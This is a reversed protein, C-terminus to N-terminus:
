LWFNAYVIHRLIFYLVVCIPGIFALNTLNKKKYRILIAGCIWMIGLDIFSNTFFDWHSFLTNLFQLIVLWLMTMMVFLVLINYFGDLIVVINNFKNQFDKWLFKQYLWATGFFTYYSDSSTKAAHAKLIKQSKKYKEREVVIDLYTVMSWETINIEHEKQEDLYALEASEMLMYLAGIYERITSQNTGLRAKKLEDQTNKIRQLLVWQSWQLRILLADAEEIAKAALLKITDLGKSSRKVVIDTIQDFYNKNTKKQKTAADFDSRLKEIVRVVDENSLPHDSNNIYLISFWANRFFVYADKAKEYKTYITLPENEETFRFYIKGFNSPLGQFVQLSFVAISHKACVTRAVSESSADIVFAINSQWAVTTIVWQAEFLM